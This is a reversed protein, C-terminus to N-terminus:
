DNLVERVKGTLTMYGFPKQIYTMHSQLVGHRIVTDDTYGSTYLVKMQPQDSALRKALELGSMGPMVVDTVLLDIRDQYQGCVAIAEQGNGAELVRYGNRELSERALARVEAEDEVLLVTESGRSMAAPESKRPKESDFLEAKPLYVKFCTGKGPESYVWINGGSQKVIGYVMALGLGTGKGLEKTTFFPEFIRARTKPDMGMGTDSVALMVYEGPVADMHQHAYEADLTVKATEITLKGGTPMADRANIALNMIVQELRAQDTRILPLDPAPIVKLEIDEGILPRLMESASCVVKNLDLLKHELIQKRSYALLQGTLATARKAAECIPRLAAGLQPNNPQELILLEARGSIITLLNNFDHAIGGALRGISELKQAQRLQEELLTKETIDLMVTRIGIVEARSNTILKEHIEVIIRTGDRRLYERTFPALKLKGALKQHVADRSTGREEPTVMEWVPRGILESHSFGLLKCETENVRSIVGTADIEHYAVPADEFLVQFREESEDLARQALLGDNGQTHFETSLNSERRTQAQDTVCQANRPASTIAWVEPKYIWCFVTGAFIAILLGASDFRPMGRTLILVAGAGALFGLLVSPLSKVWKM